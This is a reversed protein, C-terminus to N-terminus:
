KKSKELFKDRCAKSCFYHTKGGADLIVAAERAVFMGCVPDKEVQDRKIVRNESSNRDSVRPDPKRGSAFVSALVKRVFYFIVIVLLFRLIYTIM